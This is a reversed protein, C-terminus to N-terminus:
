RPSIKLPRLVILMRMFGFDSQGPSTGNSHLPVGKNNGSDAGNVAAPFRLPQTLTQVAERHEDPPNSQRAALRFEAFGNVEGPPKPTQAGFFRSQKASEAKAPASKPEDTETSVTGDAEIVAIRAVPGVGFKATPQKYQFQKLIELNANLSNDVALGNSVAFSQVVLNAEVAVSTPELPGPVAALDTSESTVNGNAANVSTEGGQWPFEMPLHPVLDRYIDPQNKVSENLLEALETGTARVYVAVLGDPEAPKKLKNNKEATATPLQSDTAGVKTSVDTNQVQRLNRKQLLVQLGEVGKDVDVVTLEVVVVVNSPDLVHQEIIAGNKLSQLFEEKQQPLKFEPHGNERDNASQPPAAVMLPVALSPSKDAIPLGQSNTSDSSGALRMGPQVASTGASSKRTTKAALSNTPSATPKAAQSAASPGSEHLPMRNHTISIWLVLSAVTAAMGAGFATWERRLNRRNPLDTMAPKLAINVVTQQVNKSLQSPAAKRPFSHLLASLKSTDDLLHRCEPSSELLREVEAREERTVEGDFYASILEDPVKQNM